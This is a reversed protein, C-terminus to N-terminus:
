TSKQRLVFTANNWGFWKSLREGFSHLQIADVTPEPHPEHFVIKGAEANAFTVTSGGGQTAVMGCDVLARVFNIWRVGGKNIRANTCPFMKHMVSLTDQKVQIQTTSAAGHSSADTEDGDVSNGAIVLSHLVDEVRSSTQASKVKNSVKKRVVQDEPM